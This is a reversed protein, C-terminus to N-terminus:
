GLHHEDGSWRGDKKVMKISDIARGIPTTDGLL